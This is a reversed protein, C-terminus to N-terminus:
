QGYLYVPGGYTHAQFDAFLDTQKRWVSVLEPWVSPQWDYQREEGTEVLRNADRYPVRNFVFSDASAFVIANAAMALALLSVVLTARWARRPSSAGGRGHALERGFAPGRNGNSAGEFLAAVTRKLRGLRERLAFRLLGTLETIWLRGVALRGAAGRREAALDAFVLAMEAGDHQRRDKPLLHLLARYLAM